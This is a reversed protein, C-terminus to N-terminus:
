NKKFIELLKFSFALVFGTSAILITLTDISISKGPNFINVLFDISATFLFFLVFASIGAIFPKEFYKKYFYIFSNPKSGQISTERRGEKINIKSNGM